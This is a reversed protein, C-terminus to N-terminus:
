EFDCILHGKLYFHRSVRNINSFARSFAKKWANIENGNESSLQIIEFKNNVSGESKFLAIKHKSSDPGVSPVDRIEFSKDFWIDGMNKQGNKFNYISLKKVKLIFWFSNGTIKEFLIEICDNAFM